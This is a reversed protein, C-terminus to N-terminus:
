PTETETAVLIARRHYQYNTSTFLAFVLAIASLFPIRIAGQRDFRRPLMVKNGATYVLDHRPTAIGAHSALRLAIEERTEMSYDDTEKPFKPICLRGHQDIISEKPRAGGLSSGPAFIFRLDEDAGDDRLIRETIRLLRGLEILAPVGAHTPAQFTNNGAWRFRLAGPRTDDAVGPLCDSEM